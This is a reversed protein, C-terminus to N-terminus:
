SILVSVNQMGSRPRERTSLRGEIRLDPGPDHFAPVRQTLHNVCDVIGPTSHEHCQQYEPDYMDAQSSLPLLLLLFLLAYRM